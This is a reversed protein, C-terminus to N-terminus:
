PRSCVSVCVYVCVRVCVCVCVCLNSGAPALGCLRLNLYVVVVYLHYSGLLPASLNIDPIVIKLQILTRTVSANLVVVM